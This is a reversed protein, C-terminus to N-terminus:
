ADNLSPHNEINPAIALYLEKLDDRLGSEAQPQTIFYPARIGHYDIERGAKEVLIGARALLRPLFPETMMFANPRQIKKTIAICALFGSVAILPFTRKEEESVASFNISGMRTKREGPRQRFVGDVALRSIECISERPLNMAKIFDMDLCDSCYKELPLPDRVESSFTPVVRVCGAPQGTPIHTILCHISQADYEDYELKDPFEEAKEFGFEEAYVRYRIGYVDRRQEITEAIDVRFFKSYTEALSAM